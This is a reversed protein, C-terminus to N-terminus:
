LRVSLAHILTDPYIGPFTELKRRDLKGAPLGYQVYTLTHIARYCRPPCALIISAAFDQDM